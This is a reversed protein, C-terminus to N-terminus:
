SFIFAYARCSADIKQRIKDHQEDINGDCDYYRHQAKAEIKDKESDAKDGLKITRGNVKVAGSAILEECKRRSALGSHAMIKQVRELM